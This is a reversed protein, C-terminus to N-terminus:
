GVGLQRMLYVFLANAARVVRGDNQTVDWVVFLSDSSPGCSGCSLRKLAVIGNKYPGHRGLKPEISRGAQWAVGRTRDSRLRGVM